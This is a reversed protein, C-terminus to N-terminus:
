IRKKNFEARTLAKGSKTAQEHRIKGVGGAAMATPRDRKEKRPLPTPTSRGGHAKCPEPKPARMNKPVEPAPGTGLTRGGSAKGGKRMERGAAESRAKQVMDEVKKM